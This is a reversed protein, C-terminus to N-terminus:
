PLQGPSTVIASVLLANWGLIQGKKFHDTGDTAQMTHDKVVVSEQGMYLYTAPDIVIEQKVYGEIIM